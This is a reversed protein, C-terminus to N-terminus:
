GVDFSECCDLPTEDYCEVFIFGIYPEDGPAPQGPLPCTNGNYALVVWKFGDWMYWCCTHGVLGGGGKLCDETVPPCCQATDGVYNGSHPPPTTCTGGNDRALVWHFVNFMQRRWVWWCCKSGTANPGLHYNCQDNNDTCICEGPPGQPGQTGQPGPLGQPFIFNFDLIEECQMGQPSHSQVQILGRTRHLDVSSSVNGIMLM